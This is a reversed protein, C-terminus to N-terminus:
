GWGKKVVEEPYILGIGKRDKIVISPEDPGGAEHPLGWTVGVVTALVKYDPDTGSIHFQLMTGNPYERALEDLTM